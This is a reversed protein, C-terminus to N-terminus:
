IRRSRPVFNIAQSRPEALSALFEADFSVPLQPNDLAVRGVQAWYEIQESISRYEILAESRAQEYLTKDIRISIASSM